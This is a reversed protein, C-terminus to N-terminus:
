FGLNVGAYFMSIGDVENDSAIPKTYKYEGFVSLPVMPPEFAVGVVGHIGPHVHDYPDISVTGGTQENVVQMLVDADSFLIHVGGGAGIYPKLPMAGIPIKIKMTAGLDIDHFNATYDSLMQSSISDPSWGWENELYEYLSDPSGQFNHGYEDEIYTILYNEMTIDSESGAYSGSIELDVLGLLPFTLQGGFIASSASQGTRPDDGSYYGIRGGFKMGATAIGCVLLLVLFKKM